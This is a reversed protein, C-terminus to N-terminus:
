ITNSRNDKHEGYLLQLWDRMIGRASASCAICDCTTYHFSFFVTLFVVLGRPERYLSSVAAVRKLEFNPYHLNYLILGNTAIRRGLTRVPDAANPISVQHTQQGHMSMM